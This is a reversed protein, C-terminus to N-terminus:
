LHLLETTIKGLIHAPACLNGKCVRIFNVQQNNHQTLRPKLAHKRVLLVGSVVKLLWWKALQFMCICLVFSSAAQIFQTTVDDVEM